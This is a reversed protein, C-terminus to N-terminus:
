HVCGLYNGGFRGYAAKQIKEDAILDAFLGYNSINTYGENRSQESVGREGQFFQYRLTAWMAFSLEVIMKQNQSPYDNVLIRKVQLGLTEKLMTSCFNAVLDALQIGRVYRSDCSHNVKVWDHWSFGELKQFFDKPNTVIGQDINIITPLLIDNNRLVKDLLALLSLYLVSRDKIEIVTVAIRVKSLVATLADRALQMRQDGNMRAGSKYEESEPNMNAALLAQRADEEIDADAYLLAGLIFNASSHISEDFYMQPM